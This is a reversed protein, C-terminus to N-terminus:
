FMQGNTRKNKNDKGGERGMKIEQEVQKAYAKKEREKKLLQM